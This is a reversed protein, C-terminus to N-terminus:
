NGDSEDDLWSNDELDASADDYGESYGEDHAAQSFFMLFVFVAIIFLATEM